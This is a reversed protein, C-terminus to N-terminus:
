FNVRYISKKLLRYGDCPREPDKCWFEHFGLWLLERECKNYNYTTKHWVTRRRVPFELLTPEYATITYRRAIILNNQKVMITTTKRSCYFKTKTFLLLRCNESTRGIIVLSPLTVLVNDTWQWLRLCNNSIGYRVGIFLSLDEAMLRVFLDM